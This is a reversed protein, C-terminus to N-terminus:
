HWVCPIMDGGLFYETAHLARNYTITELESAEKAIERFAASLSEYKEPVLFIAMTHNGQATSAVKGENLLAFTLNVVNVHKAIGTGDGSLKIQITKGREM